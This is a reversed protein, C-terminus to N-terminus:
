LPKIYIRVQKEFLPYTDIPETSTSTVVRGRLGTTELSVHWPKRSAGARRSLCSVITDGREEGAQQQSLPLRQDSM